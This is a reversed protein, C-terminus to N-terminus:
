HKNLWARANHGKRQKWHKYHTATHDVANNARVVKRHAYHKAARVTPHDGDAFTPVSTVGLWVGAVVLSILRTKM